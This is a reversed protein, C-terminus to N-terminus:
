KQGRIEAPPWRGRRGPSSLRALCCIWQRALCCIQHGVAFVASEAESGLKEAVSAMKLCKLELRHRKFWDQPGLVWNEVLIRNSVPHIYTGRIKCRLTHPTPLFPFPYPHVEASGQTGQARASCLNLQFLAELGNTVYGIM